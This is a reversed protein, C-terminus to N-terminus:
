WLICKKEPNMPSKKPCNFSKAFYENNSLTGIVRYKGRSHPNSENHIEALEPTIKECWFQGFSIFFLQDPTFNSLGPLPKNRENFTTTDNSSLKWAEFARNIGGNDAINEGLTIKKIIM